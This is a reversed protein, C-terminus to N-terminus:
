FPIDGDEADLDWDIEFPEVATEVSAEVGGATMEMAALSIRPDVGPRWGDALAKRGARLWASVARQVPKGPPRNFRTKFECAYWDNPGRRRIAVSAREPALVRYIYVQGAYRDEAWYDAALCNRQQEAEARLEGPTQLAIIDDTEPLPAPDFPRTHETKHVLTLEVARDHVQRLHAISRFMPVREGVARLMRAADSLLAEARNRHHLYVRGEHPSVAVERLLRDHVHEHFESCLLALVGGSVVPLHRLKEIGAPRHRAIDQLRYMASTSVADISLKRLVKVWQREAPLGCARLIVTRKKTALRQMRDFRWRRQQRTHAMIMALGLNDRAIERAAPARRLLCYLLWSDHEVDKILEVIRPDLREHFRAMALLGPKRIRYGARMSQDLRVEFRRAVSALQGIQFEEGGFSGLWYRTTESKTWCAPPEARYTRITSPTYFTLTGKDPNFGWGYREPAEWYSYRKGKTQEGPAGHQRRVLLAENRPNRRPKSPPGCAV